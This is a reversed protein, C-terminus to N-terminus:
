VEATGQYPADETVLPFPLKALSLRWAVSQLALRLLSFKM